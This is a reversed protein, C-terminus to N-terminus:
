EPALLRGGVGGAEQDDIGLGQLGRQGVHEGAAVQDATARCRDDLGTTVAAADGGRDGGALSSGRLGGRRHLV